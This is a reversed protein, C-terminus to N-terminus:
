IRNGNSSVSVDVTNLQMPCRLKEAASAEVILVSLATYPMFFPFNVEFMPGIGSLEKIKRSSMAFNFLVISSAQSRAIAIHQVALLQSCIRFIWINPLPSWLELFDHRSSASSLGIMIPM